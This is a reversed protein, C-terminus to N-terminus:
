LSKQVPFLICDRISKQDTLIMVLREIGLGVGGTPPMGVELAHLFNEDIEEKKNNKKQEQQQEAKESLKQNELDATPNEEKKSEVNTKKSWSQQAELRKRQEVPDNLETYANGLEMGAIYPEFREVLRNHKRHNKTLPSVALPFDIIFTPNWLHKEVILEFAMVTLEEKLTVQQEKSSPALQDLEFGSFDAKPYQTKLLELLTVFSLSDVNLEFNQKCTKLFLDEFPNTKLKDSKIKDSKIKDSKPKDSKLKESKLKDSKLKDSLVANFKETAKKNFNALFSKLDNKKNDKNKAKRLFSQLQSYFDTKNNKESNNQYIKIFNEVLDPEEKSYKTIAKKLTLTEWQSFDLKQGQYDFVLTGKMKKVVHNVLKKLFIMQDKYDTYAEYYEMMTFEPNHTRDIGENRFNKGIEYVKEFGGVILKKLYIEPSIKLYMKKNGLRRFKTEFPEAAAGGYLPQLVPTEVEMFKNKNMFQRIEQILQSRIKFIKKSEPNMLLDLHRFRYKLEIDELGHYKEPLPERSKCLLKLDQVKLSPEGKKTRFLKGKVAFIDGIDGLKWTEWTKLLAKEAQSDQQIGESAQEVQTDQNIGESAQEVQTDQQIGESTTEVQSDQKIGESTTEVQSNQNIGESAQEQTLDKTKEQEKQSNEKPLTTEFSDKRIYCQFQGSQDQLTFFAAKGMPRKRMLRGAFYFSEKSSDGEPVTNIEKKLDQSSSRKFSKRSSSKKWEVKNWLHPYLEVGNEILSEQKKIKELRLPNNNEM